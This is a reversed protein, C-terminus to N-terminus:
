RTIMHKDYPVNHIREKEFESLLLASNLIKNIEFIKDEILHGFNIRPKREAGEERTFRL